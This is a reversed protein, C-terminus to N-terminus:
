LLPLISLKVENLARSDMSALKKQRIYRQRVAHRGASFTTIKASDSHGPIPNLLSQERAQSGLEIAEASSESDSEPNATERQRQRQEKRLRKAEKKAKREKKLRKKEEKEQARKSAESSHTILKTQTESPSDLRKGDEGDESSEKVADDIDKSKPRRKKKEKKDEKKEKRKEKKPGRDIASEDDVERKRKIGATGESPQEKSGLSNQQDAEHEHPIKSPVHLQEDRLEQIKDGVLLGGRVFRVLGWRRETYIARQLDERSKQEKALDEDTKGNLRGLLGQFADLGVCQGEAQGSGRKAGLGLNDDKLTVRIHSANAATHLHAHAANKAGLLSGQTWGQASMIKHGITDTSRSWTTNNPDHSIKTRKRPGALGM